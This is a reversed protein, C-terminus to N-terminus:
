AASMSTIDAKIRHYQGAEAKTAMTSCWGDYRMCWNTTMRTPKPMGCTYQRYPYLLLIHRQSYRSKNTFHKDTDIRQRQCTPSGMYSDRTPKLNKRQLTLVPPIRCTSTVPERNRYLFWLLRGCKRQPERITNGECAGAIGCLFHPIGHNKSTIGQM